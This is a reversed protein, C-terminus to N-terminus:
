QVEEANNEKNKFHEKIVVVFAFLLIIGAIIQITTENIMQIITNDPM